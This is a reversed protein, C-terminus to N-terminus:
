RPVSRPGRRRHSKAAARGREFLSRNATSAASPRGEALALELSQESFPLWESVVGLMYFNLSRAAELTHAEDTGPFWLLRPDDTPPPSADKGNRAAGPRLWFQNVLAVGDSKLWPLQKLAEYGELALLIDVGGHGRLPSHLPSGVRVQCSVSGFRRSLGHIESKKVELGEHLAACLLLDGATVVGQGGLGALLLTLPPADPDSM